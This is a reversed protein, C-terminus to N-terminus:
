ELSANRGRGLRDTLTALGHARVAAGRPSLAQEPAWLSRRRCPWTERLARGPCVLSRSAGPTITQRLDPSADGVNRTNAMAGTHSPYSLRPPVVANREPEVEAGSWRKKTCARKTLCLAPIASPEPRGVLLQDTPCSASQHSRGRAKTSLSWSGLRARGPTTGLM